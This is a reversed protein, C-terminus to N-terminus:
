SEYEYYIKYFYQGKEQDFGREIVSNNRAHHDPNLKITISDDLNITQKIKKKEKVVAPQSIEFNEEYQVKNEVEKERKYNKFKEQMEPEDMVVEAFNDLRFDENQEFYEVSKNVVDLKQKKDMPTDVAMVEDVFNKCLNIYSKTTYVSDVVPELGLFDDKWFKAEDNNSNLADIIKVIFGEDEVTNFILCGKDLKKTDIGEYHALELRGASPNLQIFTSKQESKFIGIADVLEDDILCDSFYCIYLEGSKIKPHDSKDYLHTLIHESIEVFTDPNNFINQCYTYMDNMRVDASHGFKYQEESKFSSFFYNFLVEQLIDDDLPHETASTFCGEDKAKNGVKHVILKNFVLQTFDYM